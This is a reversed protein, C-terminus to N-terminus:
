DPQEVSFPTLDRTLLHRKATAVGVHWWILLPSIGM